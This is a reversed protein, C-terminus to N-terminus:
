KEKDKKKLETHIVSAGIVFGVTLGIGFSGIVAHIIQDLIHM